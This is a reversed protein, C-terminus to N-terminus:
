TLKKYIILFITGQSHHPSHIAYQPQYVALISVLDTKVIKQNTTLSATAATENHIKVVYVLVVDVIWHAYMLLMDAAGGNRAPLLFFM